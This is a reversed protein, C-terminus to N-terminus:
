ELFLRSIIQVTGILFGLIAGFVNIWKLHRHIVRIILGEVDEVNLGNIKTVVMERLDLSGLIVPVQKILAGLAVETIRDDLQAKAHETVGLLVGIPTKGESDMTATLHKVAGRSIRDASKEVGGVVLDSLYEAADSVTFAHELFSEISRGEVQHILFMMVSKVSQGAAEQSLARQGTSLFNQVKKALDFRKDLEGIEKERLSSVRERVTTLLRERTKPDELTEKMASLVDEIIEGMRDDLTRDYQAAAVLFRQFGSLKDLIDRLLYRGRIELEGKMGESHLWTLAFRYLPEYVLDVISTIWASVEEPVYDSVAAGRQIQGNLWREARQALTTGTESSKLLGYLWEVLKTKQDESKLLDGIKYETLQHLGAQIVREILAKIGKSRLFGRILEELIEPAKKIVPDSVAAGIESLSKDLLSSTFHSIASRVGTQFKSSGIQRALTDETLLERSVMDGINEALSFRQRPIIGPTFPVRVGFLRWERLPRFLMKIAVANTVYGIVAGLVPPLVWPLIHVPSPIM